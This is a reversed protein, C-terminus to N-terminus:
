NEDTNTKIATRYGKIRMFIRAPNYNRMRKQFGLGGLSIFDLKKPPVNAKEAMIILEDNQSNGHVFHFDIALSYFSDDDLASPLFYGFFSDDDM